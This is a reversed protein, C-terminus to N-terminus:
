EQTPPFHLLGFGSKRDLKREGHVGKIELIVVEGILWIEVGARSCGVSANGERGAAVHMHLVPNGSENPFLTGVGMIEHVGSLIYTIPIIKDGHGEEPGVILNSKDDAGGLILVMGTQIEHEAAFEEIVDPLREGEDLRLTFVRGISGERYQM